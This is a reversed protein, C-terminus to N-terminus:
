FDGAPDFGLLGPAGLESHDGTYTGRGQRMEGEGKSHM